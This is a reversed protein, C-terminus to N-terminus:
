EGRLRLILHVRDEVHLKKYISSLHAKVTRESIFLADGIERNSKGQDIMLAVDRERESLASMDLTNKPAAAAREPSPPPNASLREILRPVVRRDLWVEGNRVGRMARALLQASSNRHLCGRAGALIASVQNDDDMQITLLLIGALPAAERMLRVHQDMDGTDIHLEGDLLVIDAPREHLSSLAEPLSMAQRLSGSERLSATARQRLTEDTSALLIDM